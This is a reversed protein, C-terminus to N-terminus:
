LETEKGWRGIPCEQDPHALKNFLNNRMSAKLHSVGCGCQRCRNKYPDFLRCGHCSNLRQKVTDERAFGPKAVLGMVAATFSALQKPNIV